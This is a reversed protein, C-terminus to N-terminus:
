QSKQVTIVLQPIKFVLGALPIVYKSSVYENSDMLKFLTFWKNETRPKEEKACERKAKSMVPKVIHEWEECVCLEEHTTLTLLHYVYSPCSTVTPGIQMQKCNIAFQKMFIERWEDSCFITWMLPSFPRVLMRSPISCPTYMISTQSHKDSTCKPHRHTSLLLLTRFKGGCNICRPSSNERYKITAKEQSFLVLVGKNSRSGVEFNCSLYWKSMEWTYEYPLAIHKIPKANTVNIANMVRAQSSGKHKTNLFGKVFKM